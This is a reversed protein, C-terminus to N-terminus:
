NQNLFVDKSIETMRGNDIMSIFKSGLVSPSGLKTINSGPFRIQRFNEFQYADHVIFSKNTLCMILHNTEANAVLDSATVRAAKEYKGVELEKLIEGNLPDILVSIVSTYEENEFLKVAYVAKRPVIQNFMCSEVLIYAGDQQGLAKIEDGELACVVVKNELEDEYVTSHRLDIDKEKEARPKEERAKGEEAVFAITQADLIAMQRIYRVREILNSYSKLVKISSCDDELAFTVFHADYSCCAFLNQGHLQKVVMISDEM